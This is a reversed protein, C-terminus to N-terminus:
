ARPNRSAHAHIVAIIGYVVATGLLLSAPAAVFALAATSAKANRVADLALYYVYVTAITSLSSVVLGAVQFPIASGDVPFRTGLFLLVAYPAAVIAGVILMSAATLLFALLSELGQTWAMNSQFAGRAGYLMASLAILM